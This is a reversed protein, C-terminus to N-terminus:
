SIYILCIHVSLSYTILICDYTNYLDVAVPVLPSLSQQSCISKVLNANPKLTLTYFTQQIIHVDFM